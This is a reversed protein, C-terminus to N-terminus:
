SPSNIGFQGLFCAIVLVFKMNFTKAIKMFCLRRYFRDTYIIIDLFDQSNQEGIIQPQRTNLLPGWFLFRIFNSINKYLKLGSRRRVYM